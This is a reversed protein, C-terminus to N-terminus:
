STQIRRYAFKTALRWNGTADSDFQYVEGNKVESIKVLAPNYAALTRYFIIDDDGVHTRGPFVERFKDRGIEDFYDPRGKPPVYLEARLGMRSVIKKIDGLLLKSQGNIYLYMQKKTTLFLTADTTHSVPSHTVITQLVDINVGFRGRISRELALDDYMKDSM